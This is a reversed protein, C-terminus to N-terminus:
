GFSPLVVMLPLYPVGRLYRYEDDVILGLQYSPPSVMNEDQENKVTMEKAEKAYVMMRDDTLGSMVAQFKAIQEEKEKKRAEEMERKEIEAQM